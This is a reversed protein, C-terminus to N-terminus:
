RVSAIVNILKETQESVTAPLIVEVPQLGLIRSELELRAGSDQFSDFIVEGTTPQVAQFLICLVTFKDKSLICPKTKKLTM